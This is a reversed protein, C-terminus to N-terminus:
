DILNRSFQRLKNVIRETPWSPTNTFQNRPGSHFMGGYRETPERRGYLRVHRLANLFSFEAVFLSIGVWLYGMDVGALLPFRAKFSRDHARGIQAVQVASTSM